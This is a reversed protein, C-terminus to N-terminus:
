RLASQVPGYGPRSAVNAALGSVSDQDAAPACAPEGIVVVGLRRIADDRSLPIVFRCRGRGSILADNFDVSFTTVDFDRLSGGLANIVADAGMRNIV